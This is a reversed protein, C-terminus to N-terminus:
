DERAFLALQENMPEVLKLKMKLESNEKQLDVIQQKMQKFEINKKARTRKCAENNKARKKRYEATQGQEPVKRQPAKRPVVVKESVTVPSGNASQCSPSPVEEDEVDEFSEDTIDEMYAGMKIPSTPKAVEDLNQLLLLNVILLYTLLYTLLLNITSGGASPSALM